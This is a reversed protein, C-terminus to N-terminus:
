VVSSHASSSIQNCLGRLVMGEMRCIEDSLDKSEEELPSPTENSHNKERLGDTPPSQSPNWSHQKQKFARPTEWTLGM